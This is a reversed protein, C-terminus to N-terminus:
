TLLSNVPLHWLQTYRSMTVSSSEGKKEEKEGMKWDRDRSFGHRTLTKIIEPVNEHDKVEGFLPFVIPVGGRYPKGPKTAKSLFFASYSSPASAPHWSLITSGYLAVEAWADGVSLRIISGPEDTTPM